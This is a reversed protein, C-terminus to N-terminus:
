RVRSARQGKPGKARLLRRFLVPSAPSHWATGRGTPVTAPRCDPLNPSQATPALSHWSIVLGKPGNARKPQSPRRFLVSPAPSHWATVRAAQGAPVRARQCKPGVRGRCSREHTHARRPAVCDMGARPTDPSFSWIAAAGGRPASLRCRAPRGAHSVGVSRRPRTASRPVAPCARVLSCTAMHSPRLLPKARGPVSQCRPGPSDTRRQRQGLGPKRASASGPMTQCQPPDASGTLTHGHPWTVMHSHRGPGPGPYRAPSPSRFDGNRQTLSWSVRAPEQFALHREVREVLAAGGQRLLMPRGPRRRRQGDSGGSPRRQRRESIPKARGIPLPSGCRFWAVMPCGVGSGSAPM